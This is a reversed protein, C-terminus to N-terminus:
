SLVASGVALDFFERMSHKRLYKFDILPQPADYVMGMRMKRLTATSFAAMAVHQDVASVTLDGRVYIGHQLPSLLELLPVTDAGWQIVEDPLGEAIALAMRYFTVLRDRADQRWWQVSNLLPRESASYKGELRVIVGLDAAFYDRLDGMVLIDPSVMVTDQDFDESELYRLSVELIWLMLRRQTTEYRYAPVGLETDVDTLAVTECAANKLASARLMRLADVWDFHGLLHHAQSEPPFPRFPSVIKV